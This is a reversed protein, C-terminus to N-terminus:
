TTASSLTVLRTTLDLDATKCCEESDYCRNGVVSPSPSRPGRRGKAVTTTLIRFKCKKRSRDEPQKRRLQHQQKQQLEICEGHSNIRGGGDGHQQLQHQEDRWRQQRHRTKEDAELSRDAGEFSRERQRRVSPELTHL